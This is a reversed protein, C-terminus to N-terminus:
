PLTEAFLYEMIQKVTSDTQAGYENRKKRRDVERLIVNRVVYFETIGNKYDDATTSLDLAALLNVTFDKDTYDELANIVQRRDISYTATFQASQDVRDMTELLYTLFERTTIVGRKYRGTTVDCYDHGIDCLTRARKNVLRTRLQQETIEPIALKRAKDLKSGPKTGVVIYDVFRTVQSVVTGGHANILKTIDARSQSLRGTIVFRQGSLTQNAM